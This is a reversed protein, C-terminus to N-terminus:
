IAENWKSEKLPMDVKTLYKIGFYDKHFSLTVYGHYM